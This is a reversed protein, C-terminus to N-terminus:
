SQEKLFLLPSFYEEPVRGSRRRGAWTRTGDLDEDPADDNVDM